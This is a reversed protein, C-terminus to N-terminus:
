SGPDWDDIIGVITLDSPYEKSGAAERAAMAAPSLSTEGAPLLRRSGVTVSRGNVQATVGKGPLAEFAEPASLALGRARAQAQAAGVIRRGVAFAPRPPQPRDERGPGVGVDEEAM